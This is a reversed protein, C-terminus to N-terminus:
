SADPRAVWSAAASAERSIAMVVARAILRAPSGGGFVGAIAWMARASVREGRTIAYIPEWERPQLSAKFADLGRFNYFRRGHARIWRLTLRLWLAQGSGPEGTRASLPALGLTVYSAGSAALARMAADVLLNTTGNPAAPVRPWQEILWGNRAPIPTAVLFAIVGAM